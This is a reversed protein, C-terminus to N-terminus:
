FSVGPYFFGSQWRPHVPYHEFGDAGEVVVSGHLGRVTVSASIGSADVSSVTTSFGNSPLSEGKDYLATVVYSHAGSPADMDEFSCDTLPTGTLRKGDRYVHYGELELPASGGQLSIPSM